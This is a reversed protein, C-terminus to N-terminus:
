GQGQYSSDRVACTCNIERELESKATAKDIVHELVTPGDKDGSSGGEPRDDSNADSINTQQLISM